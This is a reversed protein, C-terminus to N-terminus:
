GGGWSWGLKGPLAHMRVVHLARCSVTNGDGVRRRHKGSYLLSSGVKTNGVTLLTWFVEGPQRVTCVKEMGYMPNSLIGCGRHRSVGLGFVQLVIILSPGLFNTNNSCM